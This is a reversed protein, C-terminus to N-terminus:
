IHDAEAQSYGLKSRIAEVDVLCRAAKAEGRRIAGAQSVSELLKDFDKTNM